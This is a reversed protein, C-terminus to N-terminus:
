LASVRRLKVSGPPKISAVAWTYTIGEHTVSVTDNVSKVGGNIVAFFENDASSSVGNIVVKKMAGNWNNTGTPKKIGLKKAEAQKVREPVYGVPWFPDRKEISGQKLADNMGGASKTQSFSNFSMLITIGIMPFLLKGIRRERSKNVNIM